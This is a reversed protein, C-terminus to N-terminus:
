LIRRQRSVISRSVTHKMTNKEKKSELKQRHQEKIKLNKLIIRSLPKFAFLENLYNKALEKEYKNLIKLEMETFPKGMVKEYFFLYIYYVTVMAPSTILFGLTSEVPFLINNTETILMWSSNYIFTVFTMVLLYGMFSILEASTSYNYIIQRKKLLMLHVSFLAVAILGYLLFGWINQITM